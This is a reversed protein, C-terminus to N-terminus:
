TTFDVPPGYVLRQFGPMKRMGAFARDAQAMPRLTSDLNLADVLASLAEQRRGTLSYAQALAYHPLGENPGLSVAKRLQTIAGAYDRHKLLATGLNTRAVQYNPAIRVASRGVSLAEDLKGSRVLAATLNAPAKLHHPDKKLTLRYEDVAQSFLGQRMRTNGLNYFANASEPALVAAQRFESAAGSWDGQDFLRNGQAMHDNSQKLRRIMAISWKIAPPPNPFREEEALAGAVDNNKLRILGRLLYAEPTKVPDAQAAEAQATASDGESLRAWAIWVHLYSQRLPPDPVEAGRTLSLAIRAEAETTRFQGSQFYLGALLFHFLFAFPQAEPSSISVSVGRQLVREAAPWDGQRMLLLALNCYSPAFTADKTISAEYKKRGGAM